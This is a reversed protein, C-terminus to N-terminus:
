VSRLNPPPPPQQDLRDIVRFIAELLARREDRHEKLEAIIADTKRASEKRYEQWQAEAEANQRHLRETIAKQEAAVKKHEAAVREHDAIVERHKGVAAEQKAVAAEQM